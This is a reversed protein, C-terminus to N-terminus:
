YKNTIIEHWFQIPKIKDFEIEKHKKQRCEVEFYDWIDRGYFIIDM